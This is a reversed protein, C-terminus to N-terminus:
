ETCISTLYLRKNHDYCFESCSILICLTPPTTGYIINWCLAVSRICALQFRDTEWFRRLNQKCSYRFATRRHYGSVTINTKIAHHVSVYLTIFINQCNNNQSAYFIPVLNPIIQQCFQFVSIAQVDQYQKCKPFINPVLM